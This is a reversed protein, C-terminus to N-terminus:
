FSFYVQFVWPSGYPSQSSHTLDYMAVLNIAGRRGLPQSIGGGGLVRSYSDREDFVENSPPVIYYQTFNIYDYQMQLFFQRYINYRTFALFGYQSDNQDFQDYRVFTYNLGVGASLRETLMYGVMPSVSVFFSNSGGGLGFGGGFFVRDRFSPTQEMDVERQGYVVTGLLLVLMLLLLKKM